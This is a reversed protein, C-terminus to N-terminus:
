IHKNEKYQRLKITIIILVILIIICISLLFQIM